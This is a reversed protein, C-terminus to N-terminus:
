RRRRLMGICGLALMAITGPEPIAVLRFGMTGYLDTPDGEIAYSAHMIGAGSSIDDYYYGGGRLERYHGYNIGENWEEM